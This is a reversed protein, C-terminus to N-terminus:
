SAVPIILPASQDLGTGAKFFDLFDDDELLCQRAWWRKRDCVKLEHAFAILFQRRIHMANGQMWRQHGFMSIWHQFPRTVPVLSPNIRQLGETLPQWAFIYDGSDLHRAFKVLETMSHADIPKCKAVRRRLEPTWPSESAWISWPVRDHVMHLWQETCSSETYIVVCNQKGRRQGGTQQLLVQEEAHIPALLSYELVKDYGHLFFPANATVVFDFRADSYLGEVQQRGSTDEQHIRLKTLGYKRKLSLLAALAAVEICECNILLGEAACYQIFERCLQEIEPHPQAPANLAQPIILSEFEKVVAYGMRQRQTHELMFEVSALVEKTVARFDERRHLVVYRLDQHFKALALDFLEPVGQANAPAVLHFSRIDRVSHEQRSQETIDLLEVPRRSEARSKEQSSRAILQKDRIARRIGAEIDQFALDRNEFTTVPKGHKPLAQLKAFIASQWNVPRLIIPIVLADGRDHRELAARMEMDFCYDSALFDPSILLLIIDASRAHENIQNAWEQGAGIQRDHWSSLLGQRELLKLQKALEDRLKEDKHSYSFFLEASKLPRAHEEMKDVWEQSSKLIDPLGGDYAEFDGGLVSQM